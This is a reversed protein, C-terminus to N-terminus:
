ECVLQLKDQSLGLAIKVKIASKASEIKRIVM